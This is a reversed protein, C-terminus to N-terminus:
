GGSRAIGFCTELFASSCATLMAADIPIKIAREAFLALVEVDRRWSLRRSRGRHRPGRRRAPGPADHGLRSWASYRSSGACDDPGPAIKPPTGEAKRPPFVRLGRLGRLARPPVCPVPHMSSMGHAAHDNAKRALPSPPCSTPNAPLICPHLLPLRLRLHHLRRLQSPPGLSLTVSQIAWAKSQNDLLGVAGAFGECMGDGASAKGM